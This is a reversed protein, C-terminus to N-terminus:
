SQSWVQEMRHESLANEDSMKRAAKLTESTGRFPYKCSLIGWRQFADIETVANQVLRVAKSQCPSHRLPFHWSGALEGTVRCSKNNNNTVTPM